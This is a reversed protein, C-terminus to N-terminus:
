LKSRYQSGADDVEGGERPDSAVLIETTGLKSPDDTDTEGPRKYLATVSSEKNEGIGDALTPKDLISQGEFQIDVYVFGFSNKNLIDLINSPNEMAFVHEGKYEGESNVITALDKLFSSLNGFM